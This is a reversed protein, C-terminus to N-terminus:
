NVVLKITEKCSKGSLAIIYNGKQMSQPFTISRNILGGETQLGISLFVRGTSDYINLAVENEGQFNAKVTVRNTAPNPYVKLNIKSLQNQIGTTGVRKVLTYPTSILDIGTGTALNRTYQKDTSNNWHEHVGLSKLPTGDGEPDYVVNAPWNAPDAAQHLYDDVAGFFPRNKFLTNQSAEQRLFDVCVSEL